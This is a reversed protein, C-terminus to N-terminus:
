QISSENMSTKIDKDIKLEHTHGGERYGEKLTYINIIFFVFILYFFLSFLLKRERLGESEKLTLGSNTTEQTKESVNM